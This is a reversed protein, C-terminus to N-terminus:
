PLKNGFYLTQQSPRDRQAFPVSESRGRPLAPSCDFTARAAQLIVPLAFLFPTAVGVVLAGTALIVTSRSKNLAPAAFILVIGVTSLAKGTEAQFFLWGLRAAM